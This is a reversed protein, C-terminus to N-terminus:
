LPKGGSCQLWFGPPVSKRTGGPPASDLVQRTPRCIEQTGFGKNITVQRENRKRSSGRGEAMSTETHEMHQNEKEGETRNQIRPM